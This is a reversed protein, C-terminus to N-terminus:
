ALAFLAIIFIVLLNFLLFASSLERSFGLVDKNSCIWNSSKGGLFFFDTFFFSLFLHYGQLGPVLLYFFYVVSFLKPNQKKQSM